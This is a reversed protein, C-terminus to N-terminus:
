RDLDEEMSATFNYDVIEPFNEVLLKTVVIGVDEPVFYKADKKVYGRDLITSITPAYTSPRGIGNEELTKILSAETFRPPPETFHQVTEIKDLSLDEKEILDPIEESKETEENEEEVFVGYAKLWGEFKIKSDSAKFLYRSDKSQVQVLTQDYVAPTMQSALTRKFVLDYVKKEDGQLSEVSANAIETPRIAEHAEQTNRSRSKYYNPSGKYFDKGFTKIIYSGASKLFAASMNFSDTRHYTIFGAEFLKQAASMTRRAGFGLKNSATQQLTSTSFPPYASRKKETKDIKKVAFGLGSYKGDIEELEKVVSNAEDRTGIQPKKGSVESLTTWFSKKSKTKFLSTLTWYEQPIFKKREEEREVVLRVAVSQVRGASLGYRVKKWLLPSLKYGVIRDLVRRAQQADVLHMDLNRSHSFSEVVAEKTIEHFVIRKFATNKAPAAVKTVHWAIAEGERDPDTALFIEKAKKFKNKLSSITKKARPSATYKPEFGKEVDVGLESKPLDRIHGMTAFVEYDDGLFRALTKAKTPSEVIVLNM